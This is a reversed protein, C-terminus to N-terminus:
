KIIPNNVNIKDNKKNFYSFKNKILFIFIVFIILFFFISINRIYEEQKDEETAPTGGKKKEKIKKKEERKLKNEKIAEEHKKVVELPITSYEQLCIDTKSLDTTNLCLDTAIKKLEQNSETSQIFQNNKIYDICDPNSIAHDDNSCFSNMQNIFKNYADTYISKCEPTILIFNPDSCKSSM